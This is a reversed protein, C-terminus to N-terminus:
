PLAADESFDLSRQFQVQGQLPRCCLIELLLLNSWAAVRLKPISLTGSCVGVHIRAILVAKLCGCMRLLHRHSKQALRPRDIVEQNRLSNSTPLDMVFFM